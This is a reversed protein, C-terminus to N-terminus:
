SRGAVRGSSAGGLGVGSGKMDPLFAGATVGVPKQMRMTSMVFGDETSKFRSHHNATPTYFSPNSSLALHFHLPRAEM